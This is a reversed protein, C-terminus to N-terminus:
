GEVVSQLQATQTNGQDSGPTPPQPAGAEPAGGLAEAMGPPIQPEPNPAFLKELNVSPMIKKALMKDLEMKNVNQNEAFLQYFEMAQKKEVAENVPLTSNAKIKVDFNGKIEDPAVREFTQGEDGTIRLLLEDSIYQQNMAVMLEGIRKILMEEINNNKSKFRANGAEQILSIGTATDNALAESGVGQTFDSVGTTQQIDAKILTEEQYASSTVDSTQIPDIGDMVDTHIVGGPTSILEDEDVNAGNKVKWQKNLILTVNDMRQNRRDNLEYVLSEIPEMEGLGYFEHPVKVDVVRVFIKSKHYYPNPEDRIIVKDNAVVVVRDDEWYELLEVDEDTSYYEEDQIGSTSRRNAKDDNSHTGSSGEVLHVNKYIGSKQLDKLRSLTSKTRHICWAASDIDTATPDFFFDYLDVLEVKPADYVTVEEEIQTKGFEPNGEEVDAFVQRKEKRMEWCVKVIATGYILMERIVEPLLVNMNMQDWQFDILTNMVRANDIDNPEVPLIDIQPKGASLRPVLTEVTSYPYPVFINSQWPYNTEDLKSRYMNYFRDWKTVFPQRWTRARTYKDVIQSALEQNTKAKIRRSM